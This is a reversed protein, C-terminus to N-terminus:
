KQSAEDRPIRDPRWPGPLPSPVAALSRAPSRLLPTLGCFLYPTAVAILAGSYSCVAGIRRFLASSVTCWESLCVCHRKARRARNNTAVPGFVPYDITRQRL